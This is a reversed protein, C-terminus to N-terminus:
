SIKGTLFCFFFFFSHTVKGGGGSGGVGAAQECGPNGPIFVAAKRGVGEGRSHPWNSSPGNDLVRIGM